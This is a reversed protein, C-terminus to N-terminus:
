EELHAFAAELTVVDGRRAAARSAELLSKLRKSRSLLLRELDDESEPVIMVAAARGNKTILVADRNEGAEKILAPLREKAETMGIVKM